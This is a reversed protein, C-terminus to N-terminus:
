MGFKKVKDPRAKIRHGATKERVKDIARKQEIGERNEMYEQTLRTETEMHAAWRGFDRGRAGKEPEAYEYSKDNIVKAYGAFDQESAEPSYPDRFIVVKFDIPAGGEQEHQHLASLVARASQEGTLDGLVGTGPAPSVISTIGQKEAAQLANYVATQITEFENDAGSAVSAIHLLYGANGGGSPTLLVDGFDFDGNADIYKQYAEMGRSGGGRIVAGGVGRPSWESTFEPVIYADVKHQTMDGWEVSATSHGIQGTTKEQGDSM